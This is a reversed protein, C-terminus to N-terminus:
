ADIENAEVNADEVGGPRRDTVDAGVFDGDDLLSPLTGHQQKLVDLFGPARIELRGRPDGAAFHGGVLARRAPMQVHQQEVLLVDGRAGFLARPEGRLREDATAHPRLIAHGNVAKGSGARFEVERGILAACDRLQALNAAPEIAGRHRRESRHADVLRILDRAPVVLHERADRQPAGFAAGVHHVWRQGGAGRLSRTSRLIGRDDTAHDRLVRSGDHGLRVSVGPAEQLERSVDHEAEARNFTSLRDHQKRFPEEGIV